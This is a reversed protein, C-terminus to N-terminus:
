GKRAKLFKTRERTFTNRRRSKVLYATKLLYYDKRKALVVAFNEQENWIVVHTNRGRKNEWWSLENSKEANKILWAVWRIRECRFIDPTREEEESGESIMHWFGFGKGKTPPRYQTRVPLGQFIIGAEVITDKYIHYLEDEYQSWDGHFPFLEPLRM